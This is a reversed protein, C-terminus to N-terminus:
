KLEASQHREADRDGAPPDFVIVMLDADTDSFALRFHVRRDRGLRLQLDLVLGLILLLQLSDIRLMLFFQGSNGAAHDSSRHPHAVRIWYTGAGHGLNGGGGLILRGAGPSRDASRSVIIDPGLDLLEFGTDFHDNGVAAGCNVEPRL